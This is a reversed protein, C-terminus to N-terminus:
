DWQSIQDRLKNLSANASWDPRISQFVPKARNMRIRMEDIIQQIFQWLIERAPIDGTGATGNPTLLLTRRSLDYAKTYHEWTMLLNIEILRNVLDQDTGTGQTDSFIQHMEDQMHHNSEPELWVLGSVWQSRSIESDTKESLIWILETRDGPQEPAEEVIEALQVHVEGRPSATFEINQEWSLDQVCRLTFTYTKGSALGKFIVPGALPDVATCFLPSFTPLDAADVGRRRPMYIYRASTANRVAPAPQLQLALAEAAHIMPQFLNQFGEQLDPLKSRLINWRKQVRLLWDAQTQQNVWQAIASEMPNRAQLTPRQGVAQIFQQRRKVLLPQDITIAEQLFKMDFVQKEQVQVEHEQMQDQILQALENADSWAEESPNMSQNPKMHDSM